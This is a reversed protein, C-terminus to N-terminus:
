QKREDNTSILQKKTKKWEKAVLLANYANIVGGTKSLEKFPKLTGQEEDPVQVDLDYKVSSELLIEKVEKATLKPYYSRVLAAVGCVIPSAMSTGDRYAYGVNAETTKVFFSPAFVDVTKKGYNSFSALFKKDGNFTIGGVKIF